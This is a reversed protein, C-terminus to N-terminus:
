RSAVRFVQNGMRFLDGDLLAHPGRLALFTGNLSGLDELVFRTGRLSLQAHRQSMIEDDVFVVDSQQRGVVVEARCLHYVDRPVGAPTLQVLRAWPPRCRSGFMVVGNEAAPAMAREREAVTEFRMVQSGMLLRDGDVLDAPERIRLYIGNRRELPSLVPGDPSPLIRAHRAALYPDDFVLDGTVGGIEIRAGRVPYTEGESGDTRISILRFGLEMGRGSAHVIAPPPEAAALRASVLREVANRLEAIGAESPADETSVLRAGCSQCFLGEDSNEIGCRRCQIM